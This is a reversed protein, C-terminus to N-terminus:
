CLGGALGLCRGQGGAGGLQQCAASVHCVGRPVATCRQVGCGLAARQAADVKQDAM